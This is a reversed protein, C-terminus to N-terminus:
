YNQGEDWNLFGWITFLAFGVYFQWTMISYGIFHMFAVFGGAVVAEILNRRM